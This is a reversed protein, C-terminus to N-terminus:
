RWIRRLQPQQVEVALGPDRLPIQVKALRVLHNKKEKWLNSDRYRLRLTHMPQQTASVPHTSATNMQRMLAPSDQPIQASRNRLLLVYYLFSSVSFLGLQFKPVHGIALSLKRGDCYFRKSLLRTGLLFGEPQKM